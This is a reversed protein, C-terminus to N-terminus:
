SLLLDVPFFVPLDCRQASRFCRWHLCSSIDSLIDFPVIIKKLRKKSQGRQSPPLFLVGFVAIIAVEKVLIYTHFNALSDLGWILYVFLSVLILWIHSKLCLNPGMTFPLSIVSGICHHDHGRECSHLYAFHGFLGFGLDFLCVFLCALILWIHSKLCLNPGMTFPLSVVSRVRRHDHGSM